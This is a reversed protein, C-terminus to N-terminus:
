YSLYSLYMSQQNQFFFDQTDCGGVNFDDILEEEFYHLAGYMIIFITHHIVM